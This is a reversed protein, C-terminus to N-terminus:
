RRHVSNAYKRQVRPDVKALRGAAAVLCDCLTSFAGDNDRHREDSIRLVVRLRFRPCDKGDTRPVRAKDDHAAGEVSNAELKQFEPHAGRHVVPPDAPASKRTDSSIGYGPKQKLRVLDETTFKM